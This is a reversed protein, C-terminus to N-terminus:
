VAVVVREDVRGRGAGGGDRLFLHDEVDDHNGHRRERDDLRRHELNSVAGDLGGLHLRDHGIRLWHMCVRVGAVISSLVVLRQRLCSVNRSGIAGCM